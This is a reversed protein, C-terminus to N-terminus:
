KILLKGFHWEKRHRLPKSFALRRSFVASRLYKVKVMGQSVEPGYADRIGEEDM